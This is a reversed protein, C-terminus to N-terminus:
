FSDYGVMINVCFLKIDDTTSHNMYVWSLLRLEAVPNEADRAEFGLVYNLYESKQDDYLGLGENALHM